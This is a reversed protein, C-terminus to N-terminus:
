RGRGVEDTAVPQVSAGERMADVALTLCERRTNARFSRDQWETWSANVVVCENPMGNFDPNKCCFMVTDGEGDTLLDILEDTALHREKKPPRPDAYQLWGRGKADTYHPPALLARGWLEGTNQVYVCSTDDTCTEMSALAVSSPAKTIDATMM